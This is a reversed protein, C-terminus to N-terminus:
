TTAPNASRLSVYTAAPKVGKAFNELNLVCLSPVKKFSDDFREPNAKIMPIMACGLDINIIRNLPDHYFAPMELM